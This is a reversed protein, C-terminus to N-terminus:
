DLGYRWMGIGSSEDELGCRTRGLLSKGDSKGVVVRCVSGREGM